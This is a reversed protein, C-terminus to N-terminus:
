LLLRPIGAAHKVVMPDGVKIKKEAFNFAAQISHGKAWEEYFTAAFEAAADDRVLTQWCVVVFGAQNLSTGYGFSKCSNIFIFGLSGGKVVAYSSFLKVLDQPDVKDLRGNKKVLGLTYLMIGEPTYFKADGHMILHIATIKNCRLARGLDSFGAQELTITTAQGILREVDIGERDLKPLPKVTPNSKVILVRGTSVKVSAQQRCSARRGYYAKANKKMKVDWQPGTDPADRPDACSLSRAPRM